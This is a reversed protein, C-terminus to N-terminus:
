SIFVPIMTGPVCVQRYRLALLGDLANIALPLTSFVTNVMLCYFYKNYEGKSNTTTITNTIDIAICIIYMYIYIYMDLCVYVYQWFQQQNINQNFKLAESTGRGFGHSCFFWRWTVARTWQFRKWLSKWPRVLHQRCQDSRNCGTRRSRHQSREMWPLLTSCFWAKYCLHSDVHVWPRPLLRLWAWLSLCSPANEPCSQVVLTLRRFEYSGLFAHICYVKFEHLM